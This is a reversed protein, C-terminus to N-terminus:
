GGLEDLQCHHLIWSGRDLNWSVRCWPDAIRSGPDPLRSGSELTSIRPFPDLMKSKLDLIRSDPALFCSGPYFHVRMGPLCYDTFHQEPAQVGIYKYM